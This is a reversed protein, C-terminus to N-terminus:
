ITPSTALMYHVAPIIYAKIVVNDTSASDANNHIKMTVKFRVYVNQGQSTIETESSMNLISIDRPTGTSTNYCECPIINALYIGVKDQNASRWPRLNGGDMNFDNLLIDTYGYFTGYHGAQTIDTDMLNIKFKDKIKSNLEDYVNVLHYHDFLISELASFLNYRKGSEGDRYAYRRRHVIM